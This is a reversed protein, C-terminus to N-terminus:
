KKPIIFSIFISLPPLYIMDIALILVVFGLFLWLIKMEPFKSYQKFNKFFDGM